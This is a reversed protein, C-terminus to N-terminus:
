PKTESAGSSPSVPTATVLFHLSTLDDFRSGCRKLVRAARTNVADKNYPLIEDIAYGCQGFLETITSRTFFRLHTRDLLGVDSYEWQGRLLLPLSAQVCRINPILAFVRGGPALLEATSRLVAWPDAFHELVDFFTVVHFGGWEPPLDDPFGGRVVGALVAAATDAGESPEIGYILRDPQLAKLAAGFAGRNCGVDLVKTGAPVRDLLGAPWPHAYRDGDGLPDTM